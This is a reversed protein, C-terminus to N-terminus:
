SLGKLEWLYQERAATGKEVGGGGKRGRSSTLGKCEKKAKWNLWHRGRDRKERADSLHWVGKKSPKSM